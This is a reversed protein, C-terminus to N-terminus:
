LIYYYYNGALIRYPLPLLAQRKSQRPRDINPTAGNMTHVTAVNDPFIKLPGFCGAKTM